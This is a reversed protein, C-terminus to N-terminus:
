ENPSLVYDTTQIWLVANEDTPEDKNVAITNFSAKRIYGDEITIPVGGFFNLDEFVPSFIHPAFIESDNIASDTIDVGVVTGGAINSENIATGSIVGGNISSTITGGSITADTIAGGSITADAITGGTITASSTISGTFSSDKINSSVSGGSITANSISGGSFTGGSVTAGSASITGSVTGGSITGGSITGGSIIGGSASITGSLTGGQITPTKLSLNTVESLSEIAGQRFTAIQENLEIPEGTQANLYLARLGNSGSTVARLPIWGNDQPNRMKETILTTAM